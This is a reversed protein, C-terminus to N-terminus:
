PGLARVPLIKFGRDVPLFLREGVRAPAQGPRQETLEGDAYRVNIRRSIRDEGPAEDVFSPIWACEPRATEPMEFIGGHVLLGEPTAVLHFIWPSHEGGAMMRENSVLIPADGQTEGTPRGSLSEWDPTLTWVTVGTDFRGSPGARGARVNRVVYVTSGGVVVRALDDVPGWHPQHTLLKEEVPLVHRPLGHALDPVYVSVADLGLIAAVLGDASISPDVWELDRDRVDGATWELAGTTGNRVRLDTGMGRTVTWVRGACATVTEAPVLTRRRWESM